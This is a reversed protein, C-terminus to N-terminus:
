IRSQEPINLERLKSIIPKGILEYLHKLASRLARQYQMSEPIYKKGTDSLRIAIENAIISLLLLDEHLQPVFLPSHHLKRSTSEPEL